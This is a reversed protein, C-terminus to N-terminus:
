LQERTQSLFCVFNIPQYCTPMVGKVNPVSDLYALSHFSFFTKSTVVSVKKSTLKYRTKNCINFQPM